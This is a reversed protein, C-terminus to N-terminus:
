QGVIKQALIHVDTADKLCQHFDRDSWELRTQLRRPLLFKKTAWWSFRPYRTIFYAMLNAVRHGHFIRYASFSRIALGAGALLHEIHEASYRRYHGVVEDFHTWYQMGVPIGLMLYGNPRLVRAVECLATQDNEIHELVAASVVVEFCNDIFPLIGGDAATSLGGQAELKKLAPPSLDVFYSGPSPIKPAIGCGIELRRGTPSVYKSLKEWIPWIRYDLM